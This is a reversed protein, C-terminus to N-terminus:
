SPAAPDARLVTATPWRAAVQYGHRQLEESVTSIWGKPFGMVQEGWVEQARSLVIFDPRAHKLQGSLFPVTLNEGQDSAIFVSVDGVDRYGLPLYSSVAGITEGSVAHAYAFNMAAVEDASFAEYADNGGRVVTTLAAFGFLTVFLSLGLLILGHRGLRIKPLVPRLVGARKPLIASAALLSTFPLGFLVVRLLGEGGYSQFFLLAFPAAALLELSRSDAARRLAGVGALVFLGITSVIRLRVVWLHSQSGTVRNAVNSGFTSGAQGFSGFIQSLHGIWFNSAGLSLWGVALVATVVILEPRGLRRALLCAVLALILAYPTLQHSISAALIVFAVLGLLALVRGRSWKSYADHGALRRRSISGLTAAVRARLGIGGGAEDLRVPRWCALVAALVVLYFLYVLAQPSFYDQDIWNTAYFLAVGAWGARVGVGSYRAIVLLPPLYLLEFALPAWRLFGVADALGTFGVLVAGLSFMGPWSFRADFNELVHGHEFIYQVFGAHVWSDTLRATPEVVSATGFLVVILALVLLALSSPRLPVRLLEIVLGIVLLALCAFYPWGLLTVLGLSGMTSFDARSVAVGWLAMGSAGILLSTMTPTHARVRM